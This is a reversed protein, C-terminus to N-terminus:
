KAAGLAPPAVPTSAALLENQHQSNLTTGFNFAVVGTFATGLSGLMVYLVAESEKQIPYKILFWLMFFFGGTIMFGLVTPAWNKIESISMSRASARDGAYITELSVTYEQEAKKLALLQDPTATKMAEEVADSQQDVKVSPDLKLGPIANMIASVASGALPGGVSSALMPAASKLLELGSKWTIAM